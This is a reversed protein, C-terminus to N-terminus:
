GGIQEAIQAAEPLQDLIGQLIDDDLGREDVISGPMDGRGNTCCFGIGTEAALHDAVCVIQAVRREPGDLGSPDHHNGVASAISDPFNWKRCLAIGLEEHTAGLIRSEAECFPEDRQRDRSEMLAIFNERMAQMEIMTGVDHLLGILFLEHPDCRVHNCILKAAAAVTVSHQWPGRADFGHHITNGRFLKALSVALAVSKLGNMGLVVIAQRTSRVKAPMGYFSSNVVRLVSASLVPDSAVLKEIQDASAAPDDVVNLIRAAIQPLTALRSVAGLAEVVVPNTSAETKM